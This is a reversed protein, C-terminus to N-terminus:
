ELEKDKQLDYIIYGGGEVHVPFNDTLHKYLNEQAQLQEVQTVLFYDYGATFSEFEELFPTQDVGRLQRYAIDGTYKWQRPVLWGYFAIRNGYDQSLTVVKADREVFGAVKNYYYPQYRYDEESLKYYGGIMGIFVIGVLGVRILISYTKQNLYKFIFTSTGALLIGILPIAPLHYYYHTTIHYTFFICYLIYGIGIGSLFWFKEKRYYLIFGVLALLLILSHGSVVSIANKWQLYYNMERLMQPFFRGQFQEELSGVIFVGYIHYTLVPLGSLILITWVQANRILKGIREKQLVLIAFAFILFFVATSKVYMAAGSSLGALIAWKWSSKNYWTYFTWWSFIIL